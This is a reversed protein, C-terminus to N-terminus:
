TRNPVQEKISQFRMFVPSDKLFSAPESDTWVSTNDVLTGNLYLYKLESVTYPGSSDKGDHYYWLDSTSKPHLLAWDWHKDKFVYQVRISKKFYFFWILSLVGSYSSFFIGEPWLKADIPISLISFAVDLILVTRLLEIHKWDRGKQRLLSFSLWVQALLFLNSPVTTVMFLFYHLATDWRAPNYNPLSSITAVITVALAGYLGIFYYLLWGGIPRKRRLFCILWVWLAVGGAAPTSSRGSDAALLTDPLLCLAFLVFIVLIGTEASSQNIRLLKGPCAQM